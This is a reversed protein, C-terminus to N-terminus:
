DRKRSVQKPRRMMVAIVDSRDPNVAIKVSSKRHTGGLQYASDTSAHGLLAAVEVASFTNKAHAAFIHRATYLSPLNLRRPWIKEATKRLLRRCNHYFDDFNKVKLRQRINELHRKIISLDTEAMNALNITRVESHGRGNTNKANKVILIPENKENLMLRALNWESPWLGTLMAASFWQETAYAFESRSNLLANRLLQIDETSMKKLVHAASRRTSRPRTDRHARIHQRSKILRDADEGVRFLRNKAEISAETSMEEFVFALAARYLRATSSSWDPEKELFYMAIQQPAVDQSSTVAYFIGAMRALRAYHERYKRRTSDERTTSSRTCSSM